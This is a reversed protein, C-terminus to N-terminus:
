LTHLDLTLTAFLQQSSFLNVSPYAIFSLYHHIYFFFNFTNLPIILSTLLCIVSEDLDLDLASALCWVSCKPDCSLESFFRHTM